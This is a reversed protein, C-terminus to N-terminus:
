IIQFSVLAPRSMEVSYWCSVRSVVHYSLYVNIM